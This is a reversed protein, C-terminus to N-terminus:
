GVTCPLHKVELVEWKRYGSSTHRSITAVTCIPVCACIKNKHKQTKTNKHQQTNRKKKAPTLGIGSIARAMPIRVEYIRTHM